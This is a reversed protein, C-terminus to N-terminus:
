FTGRGAPTRAAALVDDIRPRDDESCPAATETLCLLAPLQRRIMGTRGALDRRDRQHEARLRAVEVGELVM